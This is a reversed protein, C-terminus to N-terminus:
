DIENEKDGKHNTTKGYMIEDWRDIVERIVKDCYEKNEGKGTPIM